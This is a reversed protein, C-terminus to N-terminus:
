QPSRSKAEGHRTAHSATSARGSRCLTWRAPLTLSSSFNECAAIYRALEAHMPLVGILASTKRSNPIRSVYAKNTSEGHHFLTRKQFLRHRDRRSCPRMSRRLTPHGSSWGLLVAKGFPRVLSLSRGLTARGVEEYVVDVGERRHHLKALERAWHHAGSCAEIGVLCSPLGAILEIVTARRAATMSAM